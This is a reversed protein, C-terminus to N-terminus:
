SRPKFYIVSAQDACFHETYPPQQIAHDGTVTFTYDDWPSDKAKAKHCTVHTIVVHGEIRVMTECAAGLNVLLGDLCPSNTTSYTSGPFSSLDYMNPVAPTLVSRKACSVLAMVLVAIKFM